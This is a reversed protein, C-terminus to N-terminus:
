CAKCNTKILFSFGMNNLINGLTAITPNGNGSLVRYLNQRNLRTKKALEGLGGQAEAVDYLMRLFTKIDGDIEFEELASNLYASAEKPDKLSSLLYDKYKISKQM